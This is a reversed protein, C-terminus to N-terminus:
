SAFNQVFFVAMLSKMEEQEPVLIPSTPPESGVNAWLIALHLMVLSSPSNPKVQLNNRTGETAMSEVQEKLRPHPALLKLIDPSHEQSDGPFSPSFFSFLLQSM